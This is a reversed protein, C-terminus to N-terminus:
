RVRITPQEIAQKTNDKNLDKNSSFINDNIKINTSPSDKLGKNVPNLIEFKAEQQALLEKPDEHIQLTEEKIDPDAHIHLTIEEEIEPDAHVHLVDSENSDNNLTKSDPISPKATKPNDLYRKLPADIENLHGNIQTLKILAIKDRDRIEKDTFKSSNQLYDKTLVRELSKKLEIEIEALQARALTILSGVIGQDAENVRTGPDTYKEENIRKETKSLAEKLEKSFDLKFNDKNEKKRDDGILSLVKKEASTAKKIKQLEKIDLLNEIGLVDKTKALLKEKGDGINNKARSILNGQRYTNTYKKLLGVQHDIEAIRATKNPDSKIAEKEEALKTDIQEAAVKEHPEDPPKNGAKKKLEEIKEKYEPIGMFLDTENQERAKKVLDLTPNSIRQIGTRLTNINKTLAAAEDPTLNEPATSNIKASLQDHTSVLAQFDAKQEYNKALNLFEKMKELDATAQKIFNSKITRPRNSVENLVRRFMESPM